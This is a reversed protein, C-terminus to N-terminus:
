SEKEVIDFLVRFESTMSTRGILFGDCNQLAIFNAGNTETTPGGFVIRTLDAVDDNM